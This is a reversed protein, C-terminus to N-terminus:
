PGRYFGRKQMSWRLAGSKWANYSQVKEYRVPRFLEWRGKRGCDANAYGRWRNISISCRKCSPRAALHSKSHFRHLRIDRWAEITETRVGLRHHLALWLPSRRSSKETVNKTGESKRYGSTATQKPYRAANLILFQLDYITLNYISTTDMGFAVM